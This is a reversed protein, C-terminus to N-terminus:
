GLHGLGGCGIIALWDGPQLEVASVANFSTVGACCLPAVKAPDMGEPLIVANRYKVAVYEQFYGDTSFGQIKQTGLECFLNSVQCGECDFCCDVVPM